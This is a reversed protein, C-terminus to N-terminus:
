TAISEIAATIEARDFVNDIRDVVVGAADIAFLSPEFDLGLAAVTPVLNDASPGIDAQAYVECHIMRLDPFRDHEELLLDLVPGCVGIQCFAPTSVLLAVPAGEARAASLSVDHLPCPPERTCLPETGLPDAATPTPVDPIPQGPQVLTSEEPSLVRLAAELPSDRDPVTVRAVYTGPEPFTFRLPYYAIPIGDAHRPVTVPDGVAELRSEGGGSTGGSSDILLDFRLEAPSDLLLGGGAGGALGFALRQETGSIAYANANFIQALVVQQDDLPTLGLESSTDTPDAEGGGGCAALLGAGALGATGLLLSRRTLPAGGIAPLPGCCAASTRVPPRPM